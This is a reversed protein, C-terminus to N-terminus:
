WCAWDNIGCINGLAEQTNPMTICSHFQMTASMLVPLSFFHLCERMPGNKLQPETCLALSTWPALGCKGSSTLSPGLPPSLPPQFSSYSNELNALPLPCGRVLPVADEFDSVVSTNSHTHTSTSLDLLSTFQFHLHVLVPLTELESTAFDCSYIVNRRSLSNKSFLIKWHWIEIIYKWNWDTKHM